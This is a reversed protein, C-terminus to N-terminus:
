GNREDWREGDRGGRIGNNKSKGENIKRERKTSKSADKVEVIMKRQIDKGQKPQVGKGVKGKCVWEEGAEKNKADERLKRFM